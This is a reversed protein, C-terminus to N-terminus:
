YSVHGISDISVKNQNGYGNIYMECPLGQSNGSILDFIITSCNNSGPVNSAAVNEPFVKSELVEERSGCIAVMEYSAPACSPVNLCFNLKYSYLEDAVCVSPQKVSSAANFRALDVAQKVNAATQVIIQRKSYSVFAVYGITSLVSVMSFAVLLEIISFGRSMSRLDYITSQIRQPLRAM